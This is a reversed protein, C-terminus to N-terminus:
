VGRGPLWVIDTRNMDTMEELRVSHGEWLTADTSEGPRLVVHVIDGKDVLVVGATGTHEIKVRITM